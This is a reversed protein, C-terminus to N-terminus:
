NEKNESLEVYQKCGLALKELADGEIGNSIPMTFFKKDLIGGVKIKYLLVSSEILGDPKFTLILKQPIIEKM